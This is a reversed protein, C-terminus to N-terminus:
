NRNNVLSFISMTPFPFQTLLVIKEIVVSCEGWSAVDALLVILRRILVRM